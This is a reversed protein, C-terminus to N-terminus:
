ALAIQSNPKLASNLLILLKRAVAILAVKACKGRARLGQYFARLIPNTRSASLSALYLIRRVPARGGSIRRQGRWTGSDRNFPALGALAAAQKANLTGLEPLHACLTTASGSGIGSCQRLRATKAALPADSAIVKAMLVDLKTIETTLTKILRQWQAKLYPLTAQHVSTKISARHAILAARQTVYHALLEVSPSTPQTAAPQITRGFDTLTAADISDTKALRNHARAFDRAQRANVISIAINKSHCAKALPREYGGTAECILHVKQPEKAVLALLTTHGASTNPLTRAKGKFHIDLTAKAVDVGLYLPPPPSPENHPAATTDAPAPASAVASPVIPRQVLPKPM